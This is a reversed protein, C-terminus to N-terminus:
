SCAGTGPADITFTIQGGDSGAPSTATYALTHSGVSLKGPTVVKGQQFYFAEGEGGEPQEPMRKTAMRETDLEAGDLVLQITTAALEDKAQQVTHLEDISVSWGAVLAHWDEACYHRGDWQSNAYPRIAARVDIDAPAGRVTGAHNTVVVGGHSAKLVAEADGRSVRDGMVRREGQPVFLLQRRGELQDTVDM